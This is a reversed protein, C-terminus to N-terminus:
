TSILLMHLVQYANGFVVQLRYPQCGEAIAQSSIQLSEVAHLKLALSSAQGLAFTTRVHVDRPFCDEFESLVVFGM